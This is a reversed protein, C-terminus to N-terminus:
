SLITEAGPVAAVEYAFIMGTGTVKNIHCYGKVQLLYGEDRVKRALPDYDQRSMLVHYISPKPPLPLGLPIKDEDPEVLFMTSIINQRDDFAIPTGTLTIEM